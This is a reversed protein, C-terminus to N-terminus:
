LEYLEKLGSICHLHCGYWLSVLLQCLDHPVGSALVSGVGQGLLLPTTLWHHRHIGVKIIRTRRRMMTVRGLIM